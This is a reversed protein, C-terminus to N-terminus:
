KRNSPNALRHKQLGTHVGIEYAIYNKAFVFHQVKGGAVM